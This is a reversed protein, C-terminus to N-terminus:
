RYSLRIRRLVLDLVFLGLGLWIAFPWLEERLTFSRRAPRFVPGTDRLARGGSLASIRALLSPDSAEFEYEAPYPNQAYAHSHGFARGASRHSASLGFSGYGPLTLEAAYRGPASEVLRVPAAHDLGDLSVWSDLDHVFGRDPDYADVSLRAVGDRVEVSMPLDNSEPKRLHERVLQSIFRDFGPWRLLEASYRGKLDPTFALVFGLGVRVRALLPEGSDSELIVQAPKPKPQTVMYGDVGPLTALDIGKLFDAPERLRM